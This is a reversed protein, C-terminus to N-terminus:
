GAVVVNYIVHTLMPTSLTRTVYYVICFVLRAFFAFLLLQPNMAYVFMHYASFIAGTFFVSIFPGYISALWVFLFYNFFVEEAIAMNAYFLRGEMQTISLSSAFNFAIFALLLIFSSIITTVLQRFDTKIIQLGGPIFALRLVMGSTILVTAVTSKLAIALDRDITQTLMYTSGVVCVIILIGALLDMGPLNSDVNSNQRRM